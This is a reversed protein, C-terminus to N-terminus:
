GSAPAAAGLASLLRGLDNAWPAAVNIRTPKAAGPFLLRFSNWQRGHRVESAIGHAQERPLNFVVDGPRGTFKAARHVVVARETVTVFYYKVVFLMIFGFAMTLQPAPGSIGHVTAVLRDGPNSRAVAQVVQEQVKAKRMAM